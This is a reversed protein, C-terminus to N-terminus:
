LEVDALGVTARVRLLSVDVPESSGVFDVAMDVQRLVRLLQGSVDLHQGAWSGVGVLIQRDASLALEVSQSCFSVIGCFRRIDFDFLVDRAWAV